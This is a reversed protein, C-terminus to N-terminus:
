DIEEDSIKVYPLFRITKESCGDKDPFLCEKSSGYKLEKRIAINVSEKKVQGDKMKCCKKYKKGSGCHCPKNVMNGKGM